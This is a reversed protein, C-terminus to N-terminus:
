RVVRRDAKRMDRQGRLWKWRAGSRPSTGGVELGGTTKGCHLCRLWMHGERHDNVWEHRCFVRSIVEVLHQLAPMCLEGHEIM